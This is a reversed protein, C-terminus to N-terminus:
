SEQRAKEFIDVDPLRGLQQDLLHIADYGEATLFVVTAPSIGMDALFKM